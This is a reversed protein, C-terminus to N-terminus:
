RMIDNITIFVLLVIVVAWGAMLLRMIWKESIPKGRLKEVGTIVILGGDFPTMPLLNVVAFNASLFALWFIFKSPGEAAVAYSFRIIGVPGAANKPSISRTLMGKISVYVSRVVQWSKKLGVVPARWPSYRRMRREGGEVAFGLDARLPDAVAKVSVEVPPFEARGSQRQLTIRGGKELAEDLLAQFLDWTKGELSVKGARTLVDGPRLRAAAAPSNDDVAGITFDGGPELLVGVRGRHEGRSVQPTM